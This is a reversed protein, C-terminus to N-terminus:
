KFYGPKERQIFRFYQSRLTREGSGVPVTVYFQRPTVLCCLPWGNTPHVCHLLLVSPTLVQTCHDVILIGPDATM